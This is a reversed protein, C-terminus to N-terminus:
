DIAVSGGFCAHNVISGKLKQKEVWNGNIREFIYASGSQPGNDDDYWSGIIANNGSISVSKGFWDGSEGDSPLLKAEQIWSDGIKRFIYASGSDEGNDDDVRAGIIATDGSVSIGWGFLDGADGDSPLLKAKQIWIGNINEFVYAAGAGNGNEDDGWAGIIAINEDISVGSGFMQGKYNDVSFLKQVKIWDDQTYDQSVPKSITKDNAYAPQFGMGVCLVIVGLIIIKKM